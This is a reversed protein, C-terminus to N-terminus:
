VSTRASKIEIGWSSYVWSDLKKLWRKQLSVIEKSDLPYDDSCFITTYSDGEIYVDLWCCLDNNLDYGEVINCHVSKISDLNRFVFKEFERKNM